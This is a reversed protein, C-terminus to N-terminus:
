IYLIYFRVTQDHNQPAPESREGAKVGKCFNMVVGRSTLVMFIINLIFIHYCRSSVSQIDQLQAKLRQESAQLM